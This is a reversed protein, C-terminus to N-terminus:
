FATKSDLWSGPVLAFKASSPLTNTSTSAATSDYVILFQGTMKIDGEVVLSGYVQPNTGTVNAHQTATQKDSHVFLMGYILAGNKMDLATNWGQNIVVIAPNTPTGIQQSISGCPGTVYIIGNSASNLSSCDAVVTASFQERMAYDFCNQTGAAGCNTLVTGTPDRDAVVYDVGFVYEFISDDDLVGAHDMPTGAANGGPFFTIDPLTRCANAIVNTTSDCVPEGAVSVDLVDNGKHLTSGGGTGHGSWDEKSTLNPNPSKPCNCPPSNGNASPCNEKVDLMTMENGTLQGTFESFECTIFSGVGGGGSGDISVNNPSWISAVVNSGNAQSDPNSVIQGNGLGKVLGSAVLPVTASPYAASFTAWTEKAQATAGNENTLSADSIVTLAVRNGAVPNLRCAPVPLSTDIRCLLAHVISTAAFATTGGLGNEIQAAAPVIGTYPLSTSGTKTGDLTWFYLNSRRTQDRESLCPHGAPFDSDVAGVDSCKAWRRTAGAALWGSAAADNSILKGRNAKLYEGALNLAYEAAQQSIGARNQNTATKQEFFGVSTSFMVMITVIALLILTVVLTTVGAQRRGPGRVVPNEHTTMQPIETM